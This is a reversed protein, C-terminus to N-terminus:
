TRTQEQKNAQHNLYRALVFLYDSLRNLYGIIMGDIKLEVLLREIKRIQTKLLSVKIAEITGEYTIFKTLKPLTEDMLDILKELDTLDNEKVQFDFLNTSDIVKTAIKFLFDDIKRLEVIVNKDKLHYIAEAIMVSAQDIEGVIHIRLDDKTTKERLLSTDGRDGKKTYIKM